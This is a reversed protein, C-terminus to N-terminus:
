KRTKEFDLKSLHIKLKLVFCLDLLVAVGMKIILQFKKRSFSLKPFGNDV